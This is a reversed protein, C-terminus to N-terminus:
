NVIRKKLAPTGGSLRVQNLNKLRSQPNAIYTTTTLYFLSIIIESTLFFFNIIFILLYPTVTQIRVFDPSVERLSSIYKM